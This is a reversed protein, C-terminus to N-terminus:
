EPQNRRVEERILEYVKQYIDHALQENLSRVEAAFALAGNRCADVYRGGDIRLVIAYFNPDLPKGNAKSIIYKQYLGKENDNNKEMNAVGKWFIEDFRPKPNLEKIGERKKYSAM